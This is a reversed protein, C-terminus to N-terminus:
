NKDRFLTNLLTQMTRFGYYVAFGLLLVGLALLVYSIYFGIGETYIRKAKLAISFIIPSAVLLVVLKLFKLVVKEYPNKNEM